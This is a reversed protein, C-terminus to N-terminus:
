TGAVASSCLTLIRRAVASWSHDTAVVAPGRIRVDSALREDSLVQALKAAFDNPSGSRATVGLREKEIWDGVGRIRSVVVPRGCAVYEYVKMASSGIRENREVTFAGVGVDSAGIYTPVDEYSVQGVFLVESGFDLSKALDELERRRPGDGVILLKARDGRDKMLRFARLLTGVDHWPYLGGEFCIVQGGSSMGLASRCDGKDMPRFLDTNAANEIVTIRDAPIGYLRSMEEALGETVAVVGHLRHFTARILSDRLPGPLPSNRSKGQMKMEDEVLGNIEVFAPIGRLESVAASVKPLFRREYIVDPRFSAAERLVRAIEPATRGGGVGNVTLRPRAPRPTWKSARSTLVLVDHGMAAFNFALERVHICEADDDELRLDLALFLLRM